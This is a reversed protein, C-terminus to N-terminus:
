TESSIRSTTNSSDELGALIAPLSACDFWVNASALQEDGRRRLEPDAEYALLPYRALHPLGM